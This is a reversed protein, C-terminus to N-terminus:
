SSKKRKTLGFRRPKKKDASKPPREKEEMKEKMCDFFKGTLKQTVGGMLRNAVSALTGGINVDATWDLNTTKEDVPTLKLESEGDVVSNSASGHMKMRARKPAELELWEVNITFTATFAGVGFGVEANFHTADVVTISQLGPVCQGVRNPDTLFQWAKAQALNLAQKGEFHM